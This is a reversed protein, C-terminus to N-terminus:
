VARTLRNSSARSARRARWSFRSGVQVQRQSAINQAAAASGTPPSPSSGCPRSATAPKSPVGPTGSVDPSKSRLTGPLFHLVSIGQAQMRNHRMTTREHDEPGLHYQRSDVEGAVGARQWWADPIGIFTGDAAYLRPNYMPKELDSRDILERLDAEAASRIGDGIEGLAIRYFRFGAVPGENLESILMEVSCQRCQVAEAVVARVDGLRTM